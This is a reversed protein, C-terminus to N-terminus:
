DDAEIEEDINALFGIPRRKVKRRKPYERLQTITGVHWDLSPDIDTDIEDAKTRRAM